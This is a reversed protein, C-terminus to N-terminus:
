VARGNCESECRPGIRFAPKVLLHGNRGSPYRFTKPIDTRMRGGPRLKTQSRNCLQCASLRLTALLYTVSRNVVPTKGGAGLWLCCLRMAGPPRIPCMRGLSKQPNRSELKETGNRTMRM